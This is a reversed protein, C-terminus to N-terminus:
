TEDKLYNWLTVRSIGLQKALEQKSLHSDAALTRIIATEMKSLTDVKILLEDQGAIPVQNDKIYSELVFSVLEEPITDDESLIVLKEVINELERVNGPWNYTSLLQLAQPSINKVTTNYKKNAEPILHNILYPIDEVRKRLPAITVNLINLRFYLDPRFKDNMMLKYLDLNTAAIVRVNIKIIRDGGLRMLEKEQLVRLLKSQLSKSIEGIEDLFITGNHALEFLGQKGGKKAGTFAGDEYGFLESELLNEPLSACNIAVFPGHRLPSANHISQAFLEKGTGTEGEILITATTKSYKEATAVTRKFLSSVGVLDDFTFKAVFGKADLQMRTKYEMKQIDTVKVLTIITEAYNPSINIPLRNIIYNVNDINILKNTEFAGDAYLAKIKSSVDPAIINKQFIDKQKIDLYKEAVKNCEIIQGFSNLTIIGESIYNIISKLRQVNLKEKNALNVINKASILAQAVSKYNSTILVYDLQEKKACERICNGIGVLTPKSVAVVKKIKEQFEIVNSYPYLEYTVDKLLSAVNAFEQLEECDYSMIAIPKNFKMAKGFSHLIDSITPQISIVPTKTVLEKIAAATGGYSIIVDFQDENKQAYLHGGKTFGGDHVHIALNLEHAIKKAMVTLEPYTSVFLIQANM